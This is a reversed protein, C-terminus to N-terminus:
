RQGVAIGAPHFPGTPHSPSSSLPQWTVRALLAIGSVGSAMASILVAKKLSRLPLAAALVFGIAASVVATPIGIFLVVVADGLEPDKPLIALGLLIAVSGGAIALFFMLPAGCAFRTEGPSM